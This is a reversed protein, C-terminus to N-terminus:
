AGPPPALLAQRARAAQVILEVCLDEGLHSTNLVMDYQYLDGPQRHFHTALFEARRSDRLRVREAAEEITLRLWQSMYAIREPLPAVLRAHLMSSRPLVCGAGRGILVVQGQVALALVARTLSVVSPHQSVSQERLLQQLYTEVWAAAPPPLTEVVSQRSSDEQALYDLLEQDYVPWGLRRAVRRGITAGRSGAERSVAVTLGAPLGPGPPAAGRDGQFGHRPTEQRASRVAEDFADKADM